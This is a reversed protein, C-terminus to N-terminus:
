KARARKISAFYSALAEMDEDSLGSTITQMVKNQRERTKYARLVAIFSKTDWGTIDPIKTVTGDTRHCTVCEGSLYEGYEVDAARVSYGSAATLIAV